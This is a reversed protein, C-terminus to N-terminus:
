KYSEVYEEYTLGSVIEARETESINSWYRGFASVDSAGTVIVLSDSCGYFPSNYFYGAAPISTVTEPIYITTLMECGFFASIGVFEVGDGIIIETISSCNWFSYAPVRTANDSLIVTKLSAPVYQANAVYSPAGFIYGFYNNSDARYAGVFPVTVTEVSNCGKFAGMGIAQVSDPIVLSTIATNEFALTGIIELGESLTLSTLSTCGKFAGVGVTKVSAPIIVSTIESKGAFAYAAIETVYLGEYREPIVLVGQANKIGIIVYTNGKKEYIFNDFVDKEGKYEDAALSFSAIADLLTRAENSVTDRVANFYTAFSYEGTFSIGDSSVGSVALKSDLLSFVNAEVEIYSVGTGTYFGNVVNFAKGDVTITGNYGKQLNLRFKIRSDLNLQASSIATVINGMDVSEGVSVDGTPAYALYVDSALLESLATPVEPSASDEARAFLYAAHVYNMAYAVLRKTADTNSSGLVDTAYDVISKTYSVSYGDGYGIEIEFSEAARNAGVAKLTFIYNDGVVTMEGIPYEEGNIRVYNIGDRWLLFNVDFDTHLTLNWKLIVPIGVEYLYDSNETPIIAFGEPLSISDLEYGGVIEYPNHSLMCDEFSANVTTDVGIYFLSSASAMAKVGEFVLDVNSDATIQGNLSFLYGCNVTTNKVIVDIDPTYPPPPSGSASGNVSLFDASKIDCGDIVVYIPAGVQYRASLVIFQATGNFKCDTLYLGGGRIDFPLMGDKVVFTVGIFVTHGKAGINSFLINNNTATVDVTGNKVTFSHAETGSTMFRANTMTLRHGGLDVVSGKALTIGQVGSGSVTLTVDSYLRLAGGEPILTAVTPPLMNASYGSALSHAIIESEGKNFIAWAAYNGTPASTGEVVMGDVPVFTSILNGDADKWATKQEAVKKVGNEEVISYTFSSDLTGVYGAEYMEDESSIGNNFTVTVYDDTIVYPYGETASHALVVGSPYTPTVNLLYGGELPSELYVDNGLTLTTNGVSDAAVVPVSTKIYTPAADPAGNIKVNLATSTSRNYVIAPVNGADFSCGNFNINVTCGSANAAVNLFANAVGGTTDIKCNEFTMDLTLNTRSQLINFSHTVSGNFGFECDRAVFTGGARYDFMTVASWDMKVNELVINTEVNTPTAGPYALRATESVIIANKITLTVGSQPNFAKDTHDGALTITNGKVDITLDRALSYPKSTHTLTIDKYGEILVVATNNVASIIEKDSASYAVLTDLSPTTSSFAAWACPEGRGAGVYIATTESTIVTAENKLEADTYFGASAAYLIGGSYVVGGEFDLTIEWYPKAGVKSYREGLKETGNYYSVSLADEPSVYEIRESDLYAQVYGDPFLIKATSNLTSADLVAKCLVVGDGINVTTAASSSSHLLPAEGLIETDSISVEAAASNANIMFRPLTSGDMNFTSGSINLITKNGYSNGFNFIASQGNTWKFGSSVNFVTDTVNVNMEGIGNRQGFFIFRNCTLSATSNENFNIECGDFTLSGGSRYDSFDATVNITLDTFRIDPRATEVIPYIFKAGVSTFTGNKVEFVQGEAGGPSFTKDTNGNGLTLKHGNLDIYLSNTFQYIASFTVTVDSHLVIWTDGASVFQQLRSALESSATETYAPSAGGEPDSTYIEYYTGGARPETGQAFAVVLMSCLLLAVVSILTLLTTKKMETGKM